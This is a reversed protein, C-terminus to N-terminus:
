VFSFRRKVSFLYCPFYLCMGRGGCEAGLASGVRSLLTDLMSFQPSRPSCLFPNWSLRSLLALHSLDGWVSLSGAGMQLLLNAHPNWRTLIMYASCRLCVTSLLMVPSGLADYTAASLAM